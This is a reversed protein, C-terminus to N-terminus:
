EADQKKNTADYENGKQQAATINVMDFELISLAFHKWQVFIKGFLLM